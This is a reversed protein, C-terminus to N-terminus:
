KGTGYFATHRACDAEAVASDARREAAEIRELYGAERAFVEAAAGTAM